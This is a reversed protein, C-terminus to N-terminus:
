NSSLQGMKKMKLKISSHWRNKVANDTRGPLLRSIEAWRNGLKEQMAIIIRDEENAWDKKNVHPSLQNHWRERCQKANRTKMNEAVKSWNSPGYDRVYKILQKDEDGSWARKAKNPSCLGAWRQRCQAASRRPMGKAIAKWHRGGHAQVLARLNNDEASSWKVRKVPMRKSATKALLSTATHLMADM